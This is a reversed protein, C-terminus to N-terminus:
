ACEANTGLRRNTEGHGVKDGLLINQHLKALVTSYVFIHGYESSVTQISHKMSVNYDRKVSHIGQM